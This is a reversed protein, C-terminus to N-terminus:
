KGGPEGRPTACTPGGKGVKEKGRGKKKKGKQGPAARNKGQGKKKRGNKPTRAKKKTKRKAQPRSMRKARSKATDRAKGRNKKKEALGRGRKAAWAMKKCQSTEEKPIKALCESRAHTAERKKFRKFHKTKEVWTDGGLSTDGRGGWSKKWGGLGYEHERRQWGRWGYYCSRRSYKEEQAAQGTPKVVTEPGGVLCEGSKKASYRLDGL